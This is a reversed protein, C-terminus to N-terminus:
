AKSSDRPRQTAQDPLTSGPRGPEPHPSQDASRSPPRARPRSRRAGPCIPDDEWSAPCNSRGESGPASSSSRTTALLPLRMPARMPRKMGIGRMPAIHERTHTPMAAGVDRPAWLPRALDIVPDLNGRKDGLDRPYAQVSADARRACPAELGARQGPEFGARRETGIQAGEDDIQAKGLADGKLPQRPQHAIGEAKRDALARQDVNELARALGEGGGAGGDAGPQQLCAHDAGVFGPQPDALSAPPQPHEM